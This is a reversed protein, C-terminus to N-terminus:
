LPLTVECSIKSKRCSFIKVIGRKKYWDLLFYFMDKMVLYNRFNRFIYKEMEIMIKGTFIVFMMAPNSYEVTSGSLLSGRLCGLQWKANHYM